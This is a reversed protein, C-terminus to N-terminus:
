VPQRTELPRVRINRFWVPDSHDQLAIHGRRMQGYEPMTNFKSAAVLQNWVDSWLEYEVVKRDNLWHEVRAGDVVIRSRHWEGATSADDIGDPPHLAYNAGAYRDPGNLADPHCANDLIQYEPGTRWVRDFGEEVVHFFVGSNGCEGIKWDFALEFSEFAATTIIDGGGAGEAPAFHIADEDIVWKSPVNDMGFGRWGEFSQGDFLLIWGDRQEQETLANLRPEPAPRRCASVFLLLGLGIVLGARLLFSGKM